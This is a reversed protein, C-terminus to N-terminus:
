SNPISIGIGVYNILVILVFGKHLVSHYSYEKKKKQTFYPFFYNFEPQELQFFRFGVTNFYSIQGLDTFRLTELMANIKFNLHCKHQDSTNDESRPVELIWGHREEEEEEGQKQWYWRSNAENAIQPM